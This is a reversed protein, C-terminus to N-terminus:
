DPKSRHQKMQSFIAAMLTHRAMLGRVSLAKGGALQKELKEATAIGVASVAAALVGSGLFRKLM